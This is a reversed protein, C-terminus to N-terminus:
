TGVVEEDELGTERLAMIPQVHKITGLLHSQEPENLSVRTFLPAVLGDNNLILVAGHKQVPDGAASRLGACPSQVHWEM